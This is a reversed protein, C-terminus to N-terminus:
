GQRPNNYSKPLPELRSKPPAQGCSGTHQAEREDEYDRSHNFQPSPSTTPPQSLRTAEIVMCKVIKAYVAVDDLRPVIGEVKHQIGQALGWLVADVQKLAYVLAVVKPDGLNLGRYLGLIAAVREFNGLSSGGKAYDHSKVSHLEMEAVCQPLYDEHGNPFVGRLAVVLGAEDVGAKGLQELTEKSLAM